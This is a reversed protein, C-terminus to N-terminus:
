TKVTVPAHYKLSLEYYKAMSQFVTVKNLIELARTIIKNDAYLIEVYSCFVGFSEKNKTSSTVQGWHYQM